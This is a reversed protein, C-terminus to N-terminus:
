RKRPFGSKKQPKERELVVFQDAPEELTEYGQDSTKDAVLVRLTPCRPRGDSSNPRTIIEVVRGFTCLGGDGPMRGLYWVRDHITAAM